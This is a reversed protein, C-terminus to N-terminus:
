GRTKDPGQKPNCSQLVCMYVPFRLPYWSMLLDCSLQNSTPFHSQAATESYFEVTSFSCFVSPKEERRIQCWPIPCLPYVCHVSFHWCAISCCLLKDRYKWMRIWPMNIEVQCKLKLHKELETSQIHIKDTCTYARAQSWSLGVIALTMWCFYQLYWGRYYAANWVKKRRSKQCFLPSTVFSLLVLLM